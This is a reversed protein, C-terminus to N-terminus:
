NQWSLGGDAVCMRIKQGPNNAQQKTADNRRGIRACYDTRDWFPVGIWHGLEACNRAM